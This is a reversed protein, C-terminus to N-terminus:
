LFPYREIEPINVYVVPVETYGLDKAIKLRFHGGIVVNKRDKAENVIIPDVLGFRTISEKLGEEQDANWTRPNYTAPKLSSVPVAVIAINKNM